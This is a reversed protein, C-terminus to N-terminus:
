KGKKLLKDKFLIIVGVIVLIGLIYPVWAFNYITGGINLAAWSFTSPNLFGIVIGFLASLFAFGILVDILVNAIDM